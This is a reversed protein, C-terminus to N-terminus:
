PTMPTLTQIKLPSIKSWSTSAYHQSGFFGFESLHLLAAQATRGNTAGADVETFDADINWGSVFDMFIKTDSDKEADVSQAFGNTFIEQLQSRTKHKFTLELAEPEAKGALPLLVTHKFSPNPQLTIKSAM